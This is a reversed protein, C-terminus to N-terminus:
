VCATTWVCVCLVCLHSLNSRRGPRSAVHHNSPSKLPSIQPYISRCAAATGFHNIHASVCVRKSAQVWLRTRPQTFCLRMNNYPFTMRCLHELAFGIQMNKHSPVRIVHTIMWKIQYKEVTKIELPKNGQNCLHKAMNESKSYASIPSIVM